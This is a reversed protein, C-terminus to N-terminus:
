KFDNSNSVAIAPRGATQAGIWDEQSMIPNPKLGAKERSLNVQEMSVRYQAYTRLDMSRQAKEASETRAQSMKYGMYGIAAAACGNVITCGILLLGILKIM